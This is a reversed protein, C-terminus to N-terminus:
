EIVFFQKASDVRPVDPRNIYITRKTVRGRKNWQDLVLIGEVNHSLYIAAHKGLADTPYKGNKEFTADFTAIATGRPISGLKATFVHAGPYWLTTHPACTVRRVFEVCETNGQANVFQKEDLVADEALKLKYPM